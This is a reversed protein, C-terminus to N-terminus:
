PSVAYDWRRPNDKLFLITPLMFVLFLVGAFSFLLPKGTVGFISLASQAIPLAILLGAINGLQGAAFGIGSIWERSKKIALEQIFSYYFALSGQYFYQFLFYFVSVIVLKSTDGPTVGSATIGLALLSGIALISFGVLFPKRRNLKDSLVGLSPLTFFLILTTLIVPITVWLDSANLDNILWLSFYVSVNIFALSNAFDYSAWTLINKTNM